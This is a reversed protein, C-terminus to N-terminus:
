TVPCDTALLRGEGEGGGGLFLQTLKRSDISTLRTKTLVCCFSCFSWVLYPTRRQKPTTLRTADSMVMGDKTASTKVGSEGRRKVCKGLSSTASTAHLELHSKTKGDAGDKVTSVVGARLVDENHGNLPDLTSQIAKRSGTSEVRGERVGGIINARLVTKNM